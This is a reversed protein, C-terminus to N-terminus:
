LLRARVKGATLSCVVTTVEKGLMDEDKDEDEDEDDSDVRAVPKEYTLKVTTRGSPDALEEGLSVLTVKVDAQPIVSLPKGPTLVESRHLLLDFQPM